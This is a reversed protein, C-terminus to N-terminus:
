PSVPRVKNSDFYRLHSADLRVWRKQYIYSRSLCVCFLLAFSQSNPLLEM